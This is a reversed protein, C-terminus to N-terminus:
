AAEEFLAMEAERRTVLGQEVNGNADHVWRLFQQAAQGFEGENVYLRLHSSIFNGSGVNVVFSVLADNQNQNIPETIANVVSQAWSTDKILQQDAQQQTWTLGPVVEPGRHGWGITLIGAGDRYATLVCKEFSKILALGKPGLDV